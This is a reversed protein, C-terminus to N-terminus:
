NPRMTKVLQEFSKRTEREHRDRAENAARVEGMRYPNRPDKKNIKVPLHWNDVVRAWVVEDINLDCGDLIGCSLFAERIMPKLLLGPGAQDIQMNIPYTNYLFQTMVCSACFGAPVAARRFPKSDPNRQAAVKCKVGCRECICDAGGLETPM